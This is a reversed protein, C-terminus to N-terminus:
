NWVGTQFSWLGYQWLNHITSVVILVNTTNRMQHKVLVVVLVLINGVIGLIVIIAFIIPVVISRYRIWWINECIRFRRFRFKGLSIQLKNQNKRIPIQNLLVSTVQLERKQKVTMLFSFCFAVFTFVSLQWYIKTIITISSKQTCNSTM